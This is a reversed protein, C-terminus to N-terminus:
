TGGSAAGPQGSARPTLILRLDAGIREVSAIDFAAASEQAEAGTMATLPPADAGLLMPAVYVILEDVQRAALFAAALRPGCEVLLENVERATLRAIVADLDLRRDSAAPVREVAVPPQHAALAASEPAAEAAFVLSAGGAFLRASPPCSLMPDLLVKLPQRVWPGYTLRVDLRPDDVRVTGAGTLVASSRARWQQVDARSAEGSIWM